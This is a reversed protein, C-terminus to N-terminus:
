MTLAERQFIKKVWTTQPGQDETKMQKKKKFHNIALM